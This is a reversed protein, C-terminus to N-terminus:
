KKDAREIAAKNSYKEGYRKTLKAINHELCQERTIGFEQRLGEMYFELDGMEEIVNEIDLDKKYITHKKVTDLLEGSEGCLGLIMHILNASKPTLEELVQYGPKVLNKVLEPHTM